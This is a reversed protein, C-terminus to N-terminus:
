EPPHSLRRIDSGQKASKLVSALPQLGREGELARSAQLLRVRTELGSTVRQYLDRSDGRLGTFPHIQGRKNMSGRSYDFYGAQDAEQKNAYYVQASLPSAQAV